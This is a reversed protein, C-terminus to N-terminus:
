TFCKMWYRLLVLREPPDLSVMDDNTASELADHYQRQAFDQEAELLSAEVHHLAMATDCDHIAEASEMVRSQISYITELAALALRLEKRGTKALANRSTRTTVGRNEAETLAHAKILFAYHEDLRNILSNYAALDASALGGGSTWAVKLERLRAKQQMATSQVFSCETGHLLKSLSDMIHARTNSHLM